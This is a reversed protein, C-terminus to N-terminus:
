TFYITLNFVIVMKDKINNAPSIFLDNDAKKDRYSFRNMM